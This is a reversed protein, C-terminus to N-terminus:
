DQVNVMDRALREYSVFESQYTSSIAGYRKPNSIAIVRLLKFFGYIVSANYRAQVLRYNMGEKVLYKKLKTQIDDNFWRYVSIDDLGHVVRLLRSPRYIEKLLYKPMQNYLVGFLYPDFDRENIELQAEVISRITSAEAELKKDPFDAISNFQGQTYVDAFLHSRVRTSRGRARVLIYVPYYDEGRISYPKVNTNLYHKVAIKVM